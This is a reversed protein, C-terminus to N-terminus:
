MRGGATSHFLSLAGGGRQRDKWVGQRLRPMEHHEALVSLGWAFVTFSRRNLAAYSRQRIRGEAEHSACVM